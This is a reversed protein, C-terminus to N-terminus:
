RRRNLSDIIAWMSSTKPRKGVGKRRAGPVSLVRAGVPVQTTRPAGVADEVTFVLDTSAAVGPSLEYGIQRALELISRRETATRLFGENAICEQYFTLVDAVVAWADLLAISPDDLGRATLAALPRPAAADGPPVTQAPLQALMRALFTPQTGIRYRLSPQGPPNFIAEPEQASADQCCGCTDLSDNSASM